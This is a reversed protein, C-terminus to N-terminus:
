VDVGGALLVELVRRRVQRAARLNLNARDRAAELAELRRLLEDASQPSLRPIPLRRLNYGNIKKMSASTGAAVSRMFGRARRGRLLHELIRSSMLHEDPCLRMLLDSYYLATPEGPPVRIPLGVREMTNSRTIFLDGPQAVFRDPDRPPAIPRRGDPSYGTPTASGITLAWYGTPASVPQITLGNSPPELLIDGLTMWGSANREAEEILSDELAGMRSAVTEIAELYADVAAVVGVAARQVALPPLGFAYWVLDTFNIYPNVSGKSQEVSHTHFAGASMVLPLYEPLLDPSAPEVVFTTNACVGDFDAVAVKRLYTRRSGYLVQGPRFRMHFAPGLYGDGIQGWRRIRLDDTDMHEGAVYRELGSGVPDVRDKV